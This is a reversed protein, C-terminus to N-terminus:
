ISQSLAVFEDWRYTWHPRSLKGVITKIRNLDDATDVALSLDSQNQPALFNLIRFSEAHAYFFQTVHEFDDQECFLPYAVRFADGSVVEVSQGKPFSRPFTNTVVDVQNQRFLGIAELVM